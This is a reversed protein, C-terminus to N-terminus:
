GDHSGLVAEYLTRHAAAVRGWSHRFALRRGGDALRRRLAADDLLRAVTREVAAADRRAPIVAVTEGDRLQPDPEDATTVATPVGHALAALVAGSKTTVGATFPLVAADAAHLVESVEAAPVHGTFTVADAVGHQRVLDDLERRFARAAPEPLAQSTFGGVVLLHLDPRTARLAPLAAIAYRLGKVPHVFGFFALLRADPALGLRRRVGDRAGPGAAHGGTFHDDVNPALPVETPCKGTRMRLRTAHQQNSVVVAASAPVLRGTERDWLRARELPRWVAAPVWGPASWWGYEHVTTVLPTTPPLLVPLVGLVGTFRYAAPAFQVHVLDPRHRRITAAASATAPLWGTGGPRVPVPLAEVDVRALVTMLRHVYDSVGDHDPSGPGHVMAVRVRRGTPM